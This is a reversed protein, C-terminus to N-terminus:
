LTFGVNHCHQLSALIYMIEDLNYCLQQLMKYLRVLYLMTVVNGCQKAKAPSADCSHIGSIIANGKDVRPVSKGESPGCVSSFGTINNSRDMNAAIVHEQTSTENGNGSTSSEQLHFEM